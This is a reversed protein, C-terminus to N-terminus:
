KLLESIHVLRGKSDMGELVLRFSHTVDNNYFSIKIKQRHKDLGIWPKWLLTSRLDANASAQEAEAYNPSYFEKVPAYGVLMKYAAGSTKVNDVGSNIDIGRKTYIAIAGGSAVSRDMSAGLNNFGGVFPPNFVKIYAIDNVNVNNIESALVPTENLYFSVEGERITVIRETATGGITNGIQLGPVKGTLFDFISQTHSANELTGMDFAASADHSFIGRAYKLDLQKMRTREKAYVTVEKLSAAQKLAELKKQEEVLYLFRGLGATDIAPQLNERTVAPDTKFLDNEIILDRDPINKLGNIKYYVKATDYLMANKSSFSGDELIPLTLMTNSSDKAFFILNISEPKKTKRTEDNGVKGKISQYGSDKPYKLIPSPNNVIENWKYRRWGNTLMVLDLHDYVSDAKLSFYYAPKYINGALDGKLLLQSVITNDSFDNAGADTISLSLNAYSTDKLEVELVNKGRKTTNLTDVQIATQLIYDDNKVFVVRECLPQWNADFITLQLIGSLLKNIPLGSAISEKDTLNLNAKFLISGNMQGVLTLQKM